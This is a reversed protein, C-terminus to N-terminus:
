GYLFIVWSIILKKGLDISKEFACVHQSLVKIEPQWHLTSTFTKDRQNQQYLDRRLKQLHWRLGGEQNGFDTNHSIWYTTQGELMSSTAMEDDEEM